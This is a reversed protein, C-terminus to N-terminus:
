SIAKQWEELSYKGGQKVKTVRPVLLCMCHPHAKSRPVTEKTFVGKGLGMDVEAYVNCIDYVPHSGSLRWQYGIILVDDITSDIVANHAATAMETRAIRKLYYLQKDYGWWKLADSLLEANGTEVAKTMQSFAREAASRTGNDKLTQIYKQTEAVTKLWKQRMAPNKIVQKGTAMLDVAWDENTVYQELFKARGDRELARQMSYITSNASDGQAIGAQLADKLGKEMDQNLVWLRDSLTKGDQWRRTFALETLKQVEQSAMGGLVLSNAATISAGVQTRLANFYDNLDSQLSDTLQWGEAKLKKIFETIFFDANSSLIDEQKIIEEYLKQYLNNYDIM